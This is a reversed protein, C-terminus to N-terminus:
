SGWDIVSVGFAERQFLPEVENGASDVGADAEVTDTDGPFGWDSRWDKALNKFISSADSRTFSGGHASFTTHKAYESALVEYCAAVCRQWTGERTLLADLEADSFNADGPRPGDNATTDGIQFRVKDSNNTLNDDYTVAAM